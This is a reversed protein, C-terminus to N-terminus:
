LAEIIIRNDKTIDRIEDARYSRIKYENKGNFRIIVAKTYDNDKM